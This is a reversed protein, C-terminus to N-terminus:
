DPPRAPTSSTKSGPVPPLSGSCHHGTRQRHDGPRFHSFADVFAANDDNAIAYSDGSIPM